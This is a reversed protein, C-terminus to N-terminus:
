EYHDDLIWAMGLAEAHRTGMAKVLRHTARDLRRQGYQYSPQHREVAAHFGHARAYDAARAWDRRAYQTGIAHHIKLLGNMSTGRQPQTVRVDGRRVHEALKDSDVAGQFDATYYTGVHGCGGVYFVGFHLPHWHGARDRLEYRTM